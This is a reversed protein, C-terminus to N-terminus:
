GIALIAGTKLYPTRAQDGATPRRPGHVRPTVGGDGRILHVDIDGSHKLVLEDVITGFVLRKWRPEETKGILIRTVNRSRAYELLTAAVGEGALTVAEAGLREALRFHAAIRESSPGPPRPWRASGTSRCPSGPPM